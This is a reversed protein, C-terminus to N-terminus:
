QEDNAPEQPLLGQYESTPRPGIPEGSLPAPLRVREAEALTESLDRPRAQTLLIRQVAAASYAGYRVARELAATVDSRRYTGLLALVQQAQDKGYRQTQVLGELFRVAVPGLEAFRECLVAQRRAPDAAPRHEPRESRQGTV